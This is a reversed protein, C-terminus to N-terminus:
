EFIERLTISSFDAVVSDRMGSKIEGEMSDGDEFRVPVYFYFGATIESGTPPLASTITVSTSGLADAGYASGDFKQLRVTNATATVVRAPDGGQPANYATNAWGTVYVLDGPALNTFPTGPATIVGAGSRTMNLTVPTVLPKTFQLKQTIYSYNWSNIAFGDVAVVLTDLDPYRIRRRSERTDRKYYKFLEYSDITGVASAVLQDTASVAEGSLAAETNNSTHDMPDLFLFGIFDGYCVHWLNMIESVEAADMNEINIKYEHRPYERRQNRQEAGSDVEVKETVYRPVGTSGYAICRPFFLDTYIVTLDESGPTAAISYAGGVAKHDARVAIQVKFSRVEVQEAAVETALQVRLSRVECPQTPTDTSLGVTHANVELQPLQPPVAYVAPM